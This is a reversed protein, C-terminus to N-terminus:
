VKAVLMKKKKVVDGLELRASPCSFRWNHCGTRRWLGCKPLLVVVKATDFFIQFLKTDFPSFFFTRLAYWNCYFNSIRRLLVHQQQQLPHTVSM